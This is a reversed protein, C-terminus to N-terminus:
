KPCESRRLYFPYFGHPLFVIFHAIIYKTHTRQRGKYQEKTKTYAFNFLFGTYIRLQIQLQLCQLRNIVVTFVPLSGANTYALLSAKSRLSSKLIFDSENIPLM